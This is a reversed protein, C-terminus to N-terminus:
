LVTILKSISSGDNFSISIIYQGSVVRQKQDNELNWIYEKTNKCDIMKNIIRGHMDYISVCFNNYSNPIRIVFKDSCPNPFMEVQLFEHQSINTIISANQCFESTNGENDIAIATVVDTGLLLNTTLNWNGNVDALAAGVFRQGQGCNYADPKAAYVEITVGSPNQTDITGQVYTDVGNYEAYNILPTNMMKAPGDDLDGLDNQNVIGFPFIDIGLGDNDFIANGSLKNFKTNENNILIGGGINYAVINPKNLTGVTNYKAGQDIYIGASQNALANMGSIDTGIKNNIILNSDAEEYIIIGSSLNGSILNSDLTNHKTFTSFMVGYLNPIAVTGTIDTGFYNGKIINNETLQNTIMLGSLNNGSFINRENPSNGGIINNATGTSVVMGIDNPVAQTGSSDVGIMNGLLRNYETGRTVYFLGYGINGSLVCNIVDNHNSACDFCIGTANPLSNKSTVDTGIFNNITTNNNCHGYYVVGYVKHGSIINREGYSPGGLINYKAVINFEVGNGQILSDNGNVDPIRVKNTGTVDPGIYNGTIKNSDAAEIYVGIEINGSIINRDLATNGGIINSNALSKIVVGKHNDLLQTGTYDTGIFNGKVINNRTHKGTFLVGIDINGSIINNRGIINGYAKTVTIGYLNSLKATGTVDIGIYNGQVINNTSTRGTILIGSQSNGSIINRESSLLGGIVNNSSSDATIGNENPIPHTGNFDCGIKNGIISTNNSKKIVIGNATNGSIINNAIVNGNANNNIVIGNTNPMASTGNHNTGIFCSEVHNNTGTSESLLIGISFGIIQLGKIKNNSSFIGLAWPVSLPNGTTIAIKPLGSYGPQSTGDIFLNGGILYPLLSNISITFTNTQPNYGLDSTPINFIITDAVFNSNSSNIAERLSGTGSDSTNTVTFKAAKIYNFNLLVFYVCVILLYNKM